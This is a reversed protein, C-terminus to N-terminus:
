YWKKYRAFSMKVVVSSCAVNENNESGYAKCSGDGNYSKNSYCYPENCSKDSEGVNIYLQNNKMLEITEM